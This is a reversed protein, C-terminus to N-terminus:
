GEIQKTLIRFLLDSMDKSRQIIHDKTWHGEKSEIYQKEYKNIINCQKTDKGHKQTTTEKQVITSTLIFDCGAYCAKKNVFKDNGVSANDGNYLITLNGIRHLYAKRKEESTYGLDKLTYDASNLHQSQIHEATLKKGRPVTRVITNNNFYLEIFRLLQLAKSHISEGRGVFNREAVIARTVDACEKVKNELKDMISTFAAEDGLNEKKTLYDQIM